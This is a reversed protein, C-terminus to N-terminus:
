NYCPQGSPKTLILSEPCGKIKQMIIPKILKTVFRKMILFIIDINNVTAITTEM